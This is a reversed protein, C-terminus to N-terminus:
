QSADQIEWSLSMQNTAFFVVTLSVTNEPFQKFVLTGKKSYETTKEAVWESPLVQIDDQNEILVADLLDSQVYNSNQFSQVIIDLYLIANLADYRPRFDYKVQDDILTKNEYVLMYKAVKFDHYIFYSYGMM